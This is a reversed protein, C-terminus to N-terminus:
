RRRRRLLALLGIGGLLATAPEPVVYVSVSDVTLGAASGAAGQRFHVSALSTADTGITTAAVYATDGTGDETTPNIFLAGTDNGTGSVVDYRVLISYSQGFSLVTTGYTVAGSGTGLAMVFGAGSSKIFTRAYFNNAGGDGLHLFYDGTAQASGVTIEALMYISGSTVAPTFTHRLDEGSTTLSITGDTASNSVVPSNTGAGSIASWGDQGALAINSYTPANFDTSYLVTAAQSSAPAAWLTCAALACLLSKLRPSDM